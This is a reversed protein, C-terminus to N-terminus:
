RDLPFRYTWKDERRYASISFVINGVAAGDGLRQHAHAAEDLTYSRDLTPKIKRFGM